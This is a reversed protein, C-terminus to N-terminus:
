IIPLHQENPDLPFGQRFNVYGGVESDECDFHRMGLVEGFQHKFDIFDCFLMAGVLVEQERFPIFDAIFGVAIDQNPLAIALIVGVSDNPAAASHAEWKQLLLEQQLLLGILERDFAVVLPTPCDGNHPLTVVVECEPVSGMLAM